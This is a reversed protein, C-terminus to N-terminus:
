TAFTRLLDVAAFRRGSITEPHIRVLHPKAGPEWPFVPLRLLDLVEHLRAVETALGTVLVSWATKTEADYGDVEFAVHEGVAADLKTGSGSRFLIDGEHVAHNVPYIEPRGAVIVGLRGVAAEQLLAICQETTLQQTRPHTSTQM